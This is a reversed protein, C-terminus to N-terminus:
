SGLVTDVAVIHDLGGATDTHVTVPDRGVIHGVELLIMDVVMDAAVKDAAVPM